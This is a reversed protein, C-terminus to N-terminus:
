EANKRLRQELAKTAPSKGTALMFDVGHVRLQTVLHNYKTALNKARSLMISLENESTTHNKLLMLSQVLAPDQLKLVELITQNEEPIVPVTHLSQNSARHKLHEEQKQRDLSIAMHQIVLM